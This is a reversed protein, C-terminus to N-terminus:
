CKLRTAHQQPQWCRGSSSQSAPVTRGICRQSTSRRGTRLAEVKEPANHTITCALPRICCLM